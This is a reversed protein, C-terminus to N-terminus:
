LATFSSSTLKRLPSLNSTIAVFAWPLDSREGSKKWCIKEFFASTSVINKKKEPRQKTWLAAVLDMGAASPQTGPWTILWEVFETFFPRTVGRETLRLLALFGAELEGPYALKVASRPLLDKYYALRLGPPFLAQNEIVLDQRPQHFRRIGSSRRFYDCIQLNTSSCAPNSGRPTKLWKKMWSKSAFIVVCEYSPYTIPYFRGSM